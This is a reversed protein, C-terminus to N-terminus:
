FLVDLVAESRLILTHFLLDVTSSLKIRVHQSGAGSLLMSVVHLHHEAAEKFGKPYGAEMRGGGLGRAGDAPEEVVLVPRQTGENSGDALM